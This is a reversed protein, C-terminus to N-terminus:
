KRGSNAHMCINRSASCHPPPSWSELNNMAEAETTSLVWTLEAGQFTCLFVLDVKVNIQVFIVDKIVTTLSGNDTATTQENPEYEEERDYHQHQKQYQKLTQM